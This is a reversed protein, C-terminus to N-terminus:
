PHPQPSPAPPQDLGSQAHGSMPNPENPIEPPAPPQPSGTPVEGPGGESHGSIPNPENPMGAKRLLLLNKLARQYMCHLRTEYRHILGISQSAALNEFAGALRSLEDAGPQDDLRKQLLRTEIAWARRMRWYSSVMEEIFGFEVGDAPQLRDLHLEFLADFGERAENDLVVCRALLGHRMANQASRQKGEATVPGHSRAGNARASEIKRLSSM